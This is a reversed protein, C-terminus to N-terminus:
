GNNPNGLVVALLWMAAAGVANLVTRVRSRRKIPLVDPVPGIAELWRERESGLVGNKRAKRIVGGTVGLREALAACTVKARKMLDTIEEGNLPVSIQSQEPAPAVDPVPCPATVKNWIRRADGDDMRNVLSRALALEVSTDEGALAALGESSFKGELAQAATLKRGMLAMARSQMTDDYYFYVIRCPKTQGIRWSRRSAQRLCFLSYGTEYFVLTCFNYSGSKDFLDLGTEVLKPHSIIVDLKPAHKAIWEERKAPEVSSRLVGVGLGEAELLKELRSQVDHKDVFQVYVWVQRGKAKESKCLDILAKEKPRVKARSLNDPIAVTVFAGKEWYGVPEWEFPYDPYALLTQLMAGLLRRDNPNRRLMEKIKDTLNKEVRKYASATERDMEVPIPGSGNEPNEDIPPLNDALEDLSLFVAKDLLHRGFLSPMIGPRVSRTTSKKGRSMRNDDDVGSRETVRTEIRGYRNNFELAGEWSLGDEIMSRPELRFLLARLHDAMGGSITGTLAVVKKCSAVLAGAANGQASDQAKLEHLEDLVLYEFFGPLQRKIFLAPEYRWPQKIMQWLPAGCGPLLEGGVCQLWEQDKIGLWAGLVWEGPRALTFKCRSREKVLDGQDLAVKQDDVIRRGCDPCQLYGDSARKNFNPKWKSGLKARDRGIVYWEPGTPKNDKRLNLLDKWSRIQVVQVRPITERLEREWKRVLHGPCMVLGRYPRGNAKAHVAAMGILCKGSGMDAIVWASKQRKLTKAVAQVVHAQAEYPERLLGLEPLPDRGPVHLPELSREAQRGLQQGYALMYEDLSQIEEQPLREFDEATKGNVKLAGSKIGESVLEDLQGTEAVLYGAQCGFGQLDFLLKRRKLEQLIWSMWERLLPTTFRESQLERWLTVETLVPMFGAATSLLLIQWWNGCSLKNRHVKYGATGKGLNCRTLDSDGITCRVSYEARNNNSQLSAAVAKVASEPGALSLLLIERREGHLGIADCRVTFRTSNFRGRRGEGPVEMTFFGVDPIKQPEQCM